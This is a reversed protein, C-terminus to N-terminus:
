AKSKGIINSLDLGNQIARLASEETAKGRALQFRELCEGGAKRLKHDGDAGVVTSLYLLFGWGNNSREQGNYMLRAHLAGATHDVGILWPHGPYADQLVRSAKECAIMDVTATEGYSESDYIM